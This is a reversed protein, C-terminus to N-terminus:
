FRKLWICWEFYLYTLSVRLWLLSVWGAWLEVFSTPSFGSDLIWTDKVQGLNRQGIQGHPWETDEDTPVGGEGRQIYWGDELLKVPQFWCLLHFSAYLRHSDPWRLYSPCKVGIPDVIRAKLSRLYSFPSSSSTYHPCCCQHTNGHSLPSKLSALLTATSASPISSVEVTTAIQRPDAGSRSFLFGLSAASFM